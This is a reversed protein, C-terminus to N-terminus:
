WCMTSEAFKCAARDWSRPCDMGPCASREEPLVMSVEVGVGGVEALTGGGGFTGGDDGGVPNDEEVEPTGAVAPILSVFAM